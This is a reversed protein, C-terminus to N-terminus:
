LTSFIKILKKNLKKINYKEEIVKRASKTLNLWSEPHEILYKLKSALLDVNKEPVLFGNVGDTILEPIGSHYTSIVPIGTAMAEMLSVPIGEKDGNSATVSPLLFVHSKEYFKLIEEKTKAGLFKIYNKLKLKEVLSELENKLPGKGIILYEINQHQQIIKHLAKISYQHGKKEILRGVSLIRIINEPNKEIFNFHNINVGMHHVIIKERPCGLNILTNRWNESIPLFLDGASFLESYFLSSGYVALDYGHFVTVVKARMKLMEKVKIGVYGNMGFHCYIVDFHKNLFPILNFVLNIGTDKNAKFVNFPKLVKFSIEPYHQIIKYLAKVFRIFKNEPINFYNAKDLLAYKFVDKHIQKNGGKYQAFIEIEHGMDILGTIQNLIFTESLAPFESVVFAIKM